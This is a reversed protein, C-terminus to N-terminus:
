SSRTARFFAQSLWPFEKSLGILCSGLKPRMMMQHLVKGWAIQSSCQSKWQRKFGLYDGKVAYEAALKGGAIAMSLGNGTAPPITGAADGIFYCNPLSPTKKMGFSPISVMMWQDFNMKGQSFFSEFYANEKRFQDIVREVSGCKDLLKKTILCAVNFKGNEIPSIGIYGNKFAFMELSNINSFGEFHAKFGIYSMKKKKNPLVRGTAFIIQKAQIFEGTSLKLERKIPDLHEVRTNTKIVAGAATAKKALLLDFEFHSLSGATELFPFQLTSRDANLNAHLIKVPEIGWGHLTKLCEPSFFEGCVKHAPYNGSEILLPKVGLEALRLAACLGAVGGGIIVFDVIM